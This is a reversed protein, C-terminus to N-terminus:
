EQPDPTEYRVTDKSDKFEVIVTVKVEDGLSLEMLHALKEAAVECADKDKVEAREITFIYNIKNYSDRGFDQFDTGNYEIESFLEVLYYDFPTTCSPVEYPGYSDSFVYPKYGSKSGEGLFKGNGDVAYFFFTKDTFAEKLAKIVESADKDVSEPDSVVKFVPYGNTFTGVLEYEAGDPVRFGVGSDTTAVVKDERSPQGNNGSVYLLYDTFGSSNMYEKVADFADCVNQKSPNTSEYSVSITKEDTNVRVSVNGDLYKLAINKIKSSLEATTLVDSKVHAVYSVSGDIAVCLMVGESTAMVMGSSIGSVNHESLTSAMVNTGKTLFPRIESIFSEYGDGDVEIKKTDPLYVECSYIQKEVDFAFRYDNYGNNEVYKKIDTNDINLTGNEFDIADLGSNPTDGCGALSVLLLAALAGALFRKTINKM